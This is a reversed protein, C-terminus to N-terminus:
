DYNSFRSPSDVEDRLTQYRPINTKLTTLPNVGLRAFGVFELQFMIRLNATALSTQLRETVIRGIWCGADYEFGVVANVLRRDLLSYNLRGVSYWRGDAQGRGPGIDQGRDGWLDNIPWQWGLDIQESLGRKYRFATNLVQYNGPHYRAGLTLRESVSTTPNFQVLSDLAWQPTLNFAAGLLLDSVGKKEPLGGPLKPDPLTVLQDQFRLRQAIGLRLAEAGTGPDILRSNLGLTLLNSDAIRDNGVFSNDTYISSFNFDLAGSDYNPLLRQNRYPTKVYLARPELTQLFARGLFRADREFVLGSDLSFTPLLRSAEVSGNALPGDFQYSTAHLQLKPTIFGMADVWPRSIQARMFSRQSNPQLTLARNAQFQTHDAHLAFDLGAMDPRNFRVALQPMLDYPPQIPSLVDQLSQWRLVRFDAGWEGQGWNLKVDNPLLRQALALNRPPFDRWYNDDSVRNLNLNLGVGGLAAIGTNISGQHQYSLRWRDQERLKDNPMYNGSVQGAYDSELYRFEAGLDAGRKTMLTPYLTADRNPAINWYYPQLVTVGKVNDIGVTPVLFGSNRQEDLPFSLSPITLLPVGKFSIQADKALGVQTESDMQIVAARLIWDPMWSPGPVRRCTTYTANHIVTRNEDIFDVRSAQGYGGTGLFQYHPQQFFGEVADVKIELLPGQYVNGERNIRVNGSAKALDDIQDFDLRDAQIVMGGRRLMAEGQVSTDLDTQGNIQQGYLFTPQARRVAPSIKEQLVPSTKLQTPKDSAASEQGLSPLALATVTMLLLHKQWVMTSANCVSSVAQAM